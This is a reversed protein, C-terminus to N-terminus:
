IIQVVPAPAPPDVSVTVVKAFTVATLLVAVVMVVGHQFIRTM